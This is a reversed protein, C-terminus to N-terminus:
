LLSGNRSRSSLNDLDQLDLTSESASIWSESETSTCFLSSLYRTAMKAGGL